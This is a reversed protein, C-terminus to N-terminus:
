QMFLLQMRFVDHWKMPIELPSFIVNAIGRSLKWAPKLWPNIFEQHARDQAFTQTPTVAAMIAAMALVAMLLKGSKM